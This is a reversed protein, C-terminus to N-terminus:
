GSFTQAIWEDVPQSPHYRLVYEDPTPVDFYTVVHAFDDDRVDYRQHTVRNQLWLQKAESESVDLYIVQASAGHKTAITRLHDRQAKTFNAADFLVTQGAQLWQELQRYCEAYTRDWEEQVIAEGHLGVGRRTNIEDMDVRAFGLREELVKALTTKGAFPLGCLIFLRAMNVSGKAVVNFCQSHAPYAARLGTSSIGNMGLAEVSKKM